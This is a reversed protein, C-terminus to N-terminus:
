LPAGEWWVHRRKWQMRMEERLKNAAEAGRKAVIRPMLEDVKGVNAYGARLWYRAECVLRKEQESQDSM